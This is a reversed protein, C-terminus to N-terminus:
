ETDSRLGLVADAARATDFSDLRRPQSPGAAGTAAAAALRAHTVDASPEDAQLGQSAAGAVAGATWHKANAVPEAAAPAPVQQGAEAAAAAWAEHIYRVGEPILARMRDQEDSRGMTGVGVDRGPRKVAKPLLEEDWAAASAEMM